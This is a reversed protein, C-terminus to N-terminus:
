LFSSDQQQSMAAGVGDILHWVKQQAYGTPPRERLRDHIFHLM